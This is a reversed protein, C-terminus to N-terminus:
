DFASPIYAKLIFNIRTCAVIAVDFRCPLEALDPHEVLYMEAAKRLKAQKNAALAELGGADWNRFSRTKVEVFILGEVESYAIIDIEGWRCHWRRQLVQWGQKQLWQAVLDEGQIGIDLLHNNKSSSM